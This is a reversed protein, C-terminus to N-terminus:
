IREGTTRKPLGKRAIRSATAVELGVVYKHHDRFVATRLAAECGGKLCSGPIWLFYVPLNIQRSNPVSPHFAKHCGM